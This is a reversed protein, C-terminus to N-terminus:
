IETEKWRQCALLGKSEDWLAVGSVGIWVGIDM